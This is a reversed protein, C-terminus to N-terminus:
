GPGDRSARAAMEFGKGIVRAAGSTLQIGDLDGVRFWAAEDADDGARLAGGDPECLYDLVVYHNDSGVADLDALREYVDVLAGVRVKLGTEELMERAVAEALTEGRKLKGGPISWCGKSPPAGRKVLLIRGADFLLGGVGVIPRGNGM